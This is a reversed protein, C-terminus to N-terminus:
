DLRIHFCRSQRVLVSSSSPSPNQGSSEFSEKLDWIPEWNRQRNELVTGIPTTYSYRFETDSKESFVRHNERLVNRVGAM